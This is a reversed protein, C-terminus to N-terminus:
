HQFASLLFGWALCLKFFFKLKDVYPCAIFPFYKYYIM